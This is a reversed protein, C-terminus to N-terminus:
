RRTWRHLLDPGLRRTEALVLRPADGLRDLGMAGLTPVGEAGIAAGATYADLQDVLGASLLAAALTGGGECYVRTLGEQGLLRLASALDLQGSLDTECPLLTVGQATLTDRKPQPAEPGHLMWVPALDVSRTLASEMPIALRRSLVIRVPQPVGGMGRVTLQPDDMRATGAGVMVADHTARAAHVHARAEPGTIWRSEGSATAIRGDLTSALKLTLHPRGRTIRSLFGAQLDRAQTELVDERVEIGAARLRAIGGGDVRPDPDRLAVIVRAIGAAILADVCPPTAGHHACPELTVYATAGSAADGAEALAVTEAHPRGHDATRGRGLIRAEKVILCGVAPNPWVRGLGRRALALAAAMFRTDDTM